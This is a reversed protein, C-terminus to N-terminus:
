FLADVAKNLQEPRYEVMFSYGFLKGVWQHQPITSLQQYLLFCLNYQDTRVVFPRGWLYPRWHRVVQVLGILEREYAALKAHRPAITCSFYAVPGGGQHLVAGFGSGSADCEVIFPKDFSPLQLVPASTLANQLAHFM